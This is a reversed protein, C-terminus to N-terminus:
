HDRREWGLDVRQADVSKQNDDPFTIDNNNWWFTATAGREYSLQKYHADHDAWTDRLAEDMDFYRKRQATDM